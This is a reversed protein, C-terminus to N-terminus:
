LKGLFFLFLGIATAIVVLYPYEALILFGVAVLAAMTMVTKALARRM